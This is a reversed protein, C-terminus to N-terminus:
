MYQSLRGTPSKLLALHLNYFQHSLPFKRLIKEFLDDVVRDVADLALALVPDNEAIRITWWKLHWDTSKKFDPWQVIM